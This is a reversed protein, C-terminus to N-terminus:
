EGEVAQFLGRFDGTLHDRREYQLHCCLYHQCLARLPLLLCKLALWLAFCHAAGAGKILWGAPRAFPPAQAPPQAGLQAGVPLRTLPAARVMMLAGFVLATTCM